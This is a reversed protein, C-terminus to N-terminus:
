KEYILTLSQNSHERQINRNLLADALGLYHDIFSEVEPSGKTPLKHRKVARPQERQGDSVSGRERRHTVMSSV